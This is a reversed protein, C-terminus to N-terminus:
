AELGRMNLKSNLRQSEVNELAFSVALSILEEAVTDNCEFQYIDKISQANQSPCDFFSVDVPNNGVFPASNFDKVFTNPKKVFVMHAAAGVSVYPPNILDYVVNVKGNEIYCVPIKIWPVNYSTAFFKEATQHSVLRVPIRRYKKSDIPTLESQAAPPEYTHGATVQAQPMEYDPYRHEFDTNPGEYVADENVNLGTSDSSKTKQILYMQVFYLFNQPLNLTAINIAVEDGSADFDQFVPHAHAILPQLDSISKIDTELASRRVNNGTIKQAILANYAKDLVTAVEYETLSPYSSTVNAKDYEIMFKTYIDKHTM